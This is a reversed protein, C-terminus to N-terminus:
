PLAGLSTECVIDYYELETAKNQEAYAAAEQGIQIVEDLHILADTSWYRPLVMLPDDVPGDTIWSPRNPDMAETLPIWNFMLPGRPNVTFGLRYDLQRALEAARPTFGGGPWIIAIPNKHFNEQFVDKSKQLEQIIYEDSSEPGIAFHQFGHAQHDVWGEDELTIHDPLNEAGISDDLTIWANIVPWGYEEWYPRFLTDYYYVARRDDVILVVSLPPIRANHELFDALQSTTIAQFGDAHLAQMLAHFDAESIRSGSTEGGVSHFMIPMVVTGPPSNKSSWKDQLYLCTDQIYAHPTDLPNLLSTQFLASLVPPTRIATATPTITATPLPTTTPVRTITASPFPTAAVTPIVPSSSGPSCGSMFFLIFFVFFSRRM